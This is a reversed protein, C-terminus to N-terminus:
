NYVVVVVVVVFSKVTASDISRDISVGMTIADASVGVGDGAHAHAVDYSFDRNGCM